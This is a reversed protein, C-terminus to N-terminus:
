FRLLAHVPCLANHTVGIHRTVGVSPIRKSAKLTILAIRRAWVIQVDDVTLHLGPDFHGISPATYESAQLM